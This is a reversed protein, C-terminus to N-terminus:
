HGSARHRPPLAATVLEEHKGLENHLHLLLIGQSKANTFATKDYAVNITTAANDSFGIPATAASSFSMGPKAVDYSQRPMLNNGIRVRYGIASRTATLELDAAKVPLIMVNTNFPVTDAVSADNGNLFSSKCNAGASNCVSAIFVDSPDNNTNTFTALDTSTVRMDDVGDGDTDVDIRVPTQAPTSWPGWTVVAFYITSDAVGKGAAKQVAFDTAIGTYKINQQALKTTDRAGINSLEFPAVIANEDDVGTGTALTSGQLKLAFTGSADAPFVKTAASMASAARPAAFVPLRLTEQGSATLTVWGSAEGIWARTVGIQQTTLSDDRHHRMAAAAANMTVTFTTSGSAPVTVTDPVTFTVGPQTVAPDYQVRYTTVTGSGKNLIVVAKSATFTGVVDPAGFSIAAAGLGNDTSLIVKTRSASAVDVRGAGVRSVAYRAGSKNTGTFLDHSATNMLANKVETASWDPHLQKILAAAGAVHPAAMSTGSLSQGRFGSKALVSWISQGPATIEPKLGNDDSRPGRSSFSSLTDTNGPTIVQQTGLQDASFRVTINGAAPGGSLTALFLDGTSRPVLTSPISTAGAIAIDLDEKTHRLIVGIAGATAANGVRTASGCENDSWDLLAVKGTIISKDTPPFASCGTLQTAPRAVSGTVAASTTWPFNVSHHAVYAKAISAPATVDLGDAPELADISAAASLVNNGTSPQGVIYYSDGSNGASAVVVCGVRALNDAAVININSSTGFDSGLSMNVVDMHDSFDGDKNPDLAWELGPAILGTGGSCGFIRIAFLKAEPAVGPGISFLAPDFAIDYRGTYRVNAKTVGFGAITGGVHSGHGACDMPDGDPKPTRNATVASGPDYDDGALDTGGPVKDSAPFSAGTFTKGAYNGDGGFDRHIYDLGTDILGVKVNKGTAGNPAAARWVDPAGILPVSSTNARQVIPLPQVSKVGPIRALEDLQDADVDVAIGNFLRQMQFLVTASRVANVRAVVPQQQAEVVALEYRAATVAARLSPATSRAGAAALYSEVAPPADLELVVAVRQQAFAASSLSLLLLLVPLARQRM